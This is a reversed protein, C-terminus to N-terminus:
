ATSAPCRCGARRWPRGRDWPSSSPTPRSSRATWSRAPSAAAARRRRPRHRAKGPPLEAGQDRRRADHRRHLRRSPGPGHNRARGAASRDGRRRRALGRARRPAPAPVRPLRRRLHRPPSLGAAASEDALEAHLAFSRRALPALPTGDCWDLALFGGSKGSAACAVGTREVVIAKAGRRSLFYAISAGVAGGGCILVRM